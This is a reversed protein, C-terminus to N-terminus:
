FSNEDTIPVLRPEVNQKVRKAATGRAPMCTTEGVLKPVRDDDTKFIFAHIHLCVNDRDQSRDIQIHDFDTPTEPMLRHVTAESGNPATPTEAATAVLGVLFLFLSLLLLKSM